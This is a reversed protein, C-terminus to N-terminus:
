GGPAMATGEAAACPLLRRVAHGDGYAAHHFAQGHLVAPHDLPQLLDRALPDLRHAEEAAAALVAQKALCSGVAGAKAHKGPRDLGGRDAVHENLRHRRSQHTVQPVRAITRREKESISYM